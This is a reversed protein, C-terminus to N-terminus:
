IDDFDDMLFRKCKDIGIKKALRAMGKTAITSVPNIPLRSSALQRVAVLMAELKNEMIKQLKPNKRIPVTPIAACAWPDFWYLSITSKTILFIVKTITM